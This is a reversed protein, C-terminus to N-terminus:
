EKEKYAYSYTKKGNIKADNLVFAMNKLKDRRNLENAEELVSKETVGARAVFLTVDANDAILLTDTVPLTPATDVIIIDYYARAKAMFEEFAGSSLLQPANPPIAGSLCVHHNKSGDIGTYIYEQWNSDPDQLYDTLGKTNLGMGFYNHQQPSRLDAGVLLVKKNISAYAVSLNYSVLSKGENVKGSTVFVVSGETKKGRPLMYNINTALIRFSEGLISRDDLDKFIKNLKFHPIEALIPLSKSVTEIDSKSEVKDNLTFKMYLFAFPLFLGLLGAIGMVVMRKPSRPKVETIGFDVVKVSPATVALNIAAEERKQLLLLFLNEKISQQREIARLRKEKEPLGSFISSAKNKEQNLRSLSTRLQAQYVNVTKIINVKARELQGSITVLTPHSEGVSAMLKERELAMENYNAVLANLSANELGINVPLLMYQGQSLVTEKLVKALSIQTELNNVSEETESKRILSNGADAEIYSLNNQAKFSQKGGEISDLEQTLYGFREDIFELTRKSVQQRDIIGDNNFVEVLKNLVTESKLPSEGFLYIVLIESKKNLAQISLSKMLNTVAEKFPYLKILFKKDKFENIKVEEKLSIEFPLRTKVSDEVFYPVDFEENNEDIIKFGSVQLKINYSQTKSISDFKTNYLVKFPADWIESTKISGVNYYAVNLDLSDVVQGLLRYSQMVAIENDMNIKSDSWVMSLPDKAIDTESSDDIIKVKTVSAYVIPAYRLYLYGVFLTILVSILFFPWYSLFRKLFKIFDFSNEKDINSLELDFATDKM